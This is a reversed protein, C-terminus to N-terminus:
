LVSCVPRSSVALGKVPARSSNFPWFLALSSPLFLSSPRLFLRLLFPVVRPRRLLRLFLLYLLLPLLVGAVIIIGIVTRTMIIAITGTNSVIIAGTAM